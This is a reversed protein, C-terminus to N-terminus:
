GGGQAVIQEVCFHHQRARRSSIRMGPDYSFMRGLLELGGTQVLDPQLEALPRLGTDPWSPFTDKFFELEMTQPWREKTPTGLLQFIRFVTGIECDGHFIPQGTAMEGIVCGASWVDVEFGYHTAGLLIEPARYWLTIVDVTVNRLPSALTRALGFDAIKLVGGPGILVNQPKVDRHVLGRSHCAHLGNLLKSSYDQVEEIPMLIGERRFSRLVGHLDREVFEFVLRFDRAPGADLVDRLLVVNPHAFDRLLSVERILYAPMGDGCEMPDRHLRKIAVVQGSSLDRARSVTGYVGSNIEEELLYRGAGCLGLGVGAALAQLGAEQLLLAETAFAAAAPNQEAALLMVERNGRLAESAFQASCGEQCIAELVVERDGQLDSVVYELALGNIRVAELATERSRAFSLLRLREASAIALLPSREEPVSGTLAAAALLRVTADTHALIGTSGLCEAAVRAAVSAPPLAQLRVLAARRVGWDPDELMAVMRPVLHQQEEPIAAESHLATLVAYRESASPAGLGQQRLQPERPDEWFPAEAPIRALDVEPVATRVGDSDHWPAAGAEIGAPWSEWLM